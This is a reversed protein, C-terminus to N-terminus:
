EKMLANENERLNLSHTCIGDIDTLINEQASNGKSLTLTAQQRLDDYDFTTEDFHHCYRLLTYTFKNTINFQNKNHNEDIQNLHLEIVEECGDGYLSFDTKQIYHNKDANLNACYRVPMFNPAVVKTIGEKKMTSLFITLAVLANPSVKGIIDEMDVDKNVKRFFRDLKKSLPSTQKEKKNQLTYLYLTNDVIGFTISPLTFEDNGSLNSLMIAMKYPGELNSHNKKIQCTVSLNDMHGIMFTGTKVKNQLQKARQEIYSIPSNFDFNTASVFLDLVLKETFAEETLAFYQKDDAFFDKAIKLYDDVVEVFHELNPIQITPVSFDSNYTTSQKHPKSFIDDQTKHLIGDIKSYFKVFFNWNGFERSELKCVGTTAQSFIKNLARKTQEITNTEM